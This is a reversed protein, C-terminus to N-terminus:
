ASSGRSVAALHVPLDHVPLNTLDKALEGALRDSVAKPLEDRLDGLAQPPAVLILHDYEGRKAAADLFGALEHAFRRKEHRKPDTPPQMAHRREGARDFTRGPRDSTLDRGPRNVGDFERLPTLGGGDGAPEQRVLRAKSGDAILVWTTGRRM